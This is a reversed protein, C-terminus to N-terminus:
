EYRLAEVPNKTAAKWSQWILTIYAILFTIIAAVLFLWGSIATKYAFNELYKQIAFWAVPCAILLSIVIVTIFNQTLLHVVEIEKAGNVKRIGIEKFRQEVDFVSFSFLGLSSIIIAVIAFLTYVGAIKKDEQYLSQVHDDVFEYSFDKTPNVEEFLNKLFAISEAEKGETIHMMFYTEEKDDFFTMVLPQVKNSLHQFNFDKVVGIVKFPDEEAGWYRNLLYADDLSEMGFFKMASENIVVKQQRDKDMERNFFRGEVVEMGYLDEFNPTISIGAITQYDQDGTQNRWPASYTTVPDDGYCLNQLYPNKEIENLVYQQNKQQINILEEYEKMVRQAEEQEQATFRWKSPSLREFFRVKIINETKFGLEKDLMFNLQKIFFMSVIILAITVIYQVSMLVKRVLASNKGSMFEKISKVPNILSYKLAPFFSAFLTVVLIMAVLILTDSKFSFNIEKESFIRFVPMFLLLLLISIIAASSTLLFVERVFGFTISLRGAGLVKKIGLEKGRKVLTVNYINIFNFVSIVLILCAIIGLVYLSSKNGFKFFGYMQFEDSFYFSSYPKFSVKSEPFQPHSRGIEALQMNLTNIDAGERLVIFDCGGGDTENVILPFVADFEMSCNKLPKKLIGKVTFANRNFFIQEGIPDKDGFIQNAFEESLAISRPEKMITKLNGKIMTFDFLSSFMTDIAISKILYKHDNYDIEMNPNFFAMTSKEVEPYKSYDAYFFQKPSLLTPNSQLTPYVTSFYLRYYNEHFKDTSTEFLVYKALLFTCTIGLALGIINIISFLRTARLGKLTQKIQNIIM